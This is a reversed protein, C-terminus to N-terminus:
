WGIETIHCFGSADTTWNITVTSGHDRASMLNQVITTYNAENSNVYSFTHGPCVTISGSFTVQFDKAGPAGGAAAIVHFAGMTGSSVGTTAMAPLATMLVIVSAAIGKLMMNM